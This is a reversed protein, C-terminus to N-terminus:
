RSLRIIRRWVQRTRNRSGSRACNPRLNVVVRGPSTGRVKPSLIASRKRRQAAHRQRHDRLGIAGREGLRHQNGMASQASRRDELNRGVPAFASDRREIEQGVDPGFPQERLTPRFSPAPNARVRTAPGNRRSRTRDIHAWFDSWCVRAASRSCNAVARGGIALGVRRCRLSDSPRPLRRHRRYWRITM